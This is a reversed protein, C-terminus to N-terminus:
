AHSWTRMYKNEPYTLLTEHAIEIWNQTQNLLWFTHSQHLYCNTFSIIILDLRHFVHQNRLKTDFYGGLMVLTIVHVANYTKEISWQVKSKINFSMSKWSWVGLMVRICNVWLQPSIKKFSKLTFDKGRRENRVM